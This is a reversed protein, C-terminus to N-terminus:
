MDLGTEIEYKQQVGAIIVMCLVPSGDLATFGLVNFHRDNHSVKNQPGTGIECVYKQGGIHSDCQQSINSGVEDVVLCMEPHTLHYPTKLLGQYQSPPKNLLRAVVDDAMCNYGEDYMKEANGFTLANSRDM